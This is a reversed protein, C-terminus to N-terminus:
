FNKTSKSLSNGKGGRPRGASRALELRNIANGQGRAPEESRQTGFEEQLSEAQLLLFFYLADVDFVLEFCLPV